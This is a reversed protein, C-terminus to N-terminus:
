ALWRAGRERLVYVQVCEAFQLHRVLLETDSDGVLALAM